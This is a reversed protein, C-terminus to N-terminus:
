AGLRHELLFPLPLCMMVPECVDACVLSVWKTVFPRLGQADDINYLKKPEELVRFLKLKTTFIDWMSIKSWFSTKELYSGEVMEVVDKGLVKDQDAIEENDSDDQEMLTKAFYSVRKKGSYRRTQRMLICRKCAQRFTDRSFAISNDHDPYDHNMVFQIAGRVEYYIAYGAFAAFFIGVSAFWTVGTIVWPDDLGAFLTFVLVALPIGLLFTFFLWDVFVLNKRMGPPAPFFEKVLYHGSWSDIVFRTALVMGESFTYCFQILALFLPPAHWWESDSQTTAGSIIAMDLVINLTLQVAFALFIGAFLVCVITYVARLMQLGKNSSRVRKIQISRKTSSAATGGQLHEAVHLREELIIQHNENEVVHCGHTEFTERASGRFRVSSSPVLLSWHDQFYKATVLQNPDVRFSTAAVSTRRRSKPASHVDSSPPSPIDQFTMGIDSEDEEVVAATAEFNDEVKVEEESM